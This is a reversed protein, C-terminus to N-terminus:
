GNVSKSPRPPPPSGFGESFYAAVGTYISFLWAFLSFVTSHGLTYRGLFRNALDNFDAQRDFTSMFVAWGAM